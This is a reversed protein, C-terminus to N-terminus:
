DDYFGWVREGREEEGRRGEGAGGAEGGFGVGAVDYVADVGGRVGGAGEEDVGRAGEGRGDAVAAGRDVRGRGSGADRIGDM